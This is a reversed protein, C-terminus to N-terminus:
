KTSRPILGFSEQISKHGKQLKEDLPHALVFSELMAIFKSFYLFNMMDIRTDHGSLMKNIFLRLIGQPLMADRVARSPSLSFPPDNLHKQCIRELLSGLIKIETGTHPPPYYLKAQGGVFLTVSNKLMTEKRSIDFLFLKKTLVYSYWYFM